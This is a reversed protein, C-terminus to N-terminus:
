PVIVASFGETELITETDPRWNEYLRTNVFYARYKAKGADEGTKAAKIIMNAIFTSMM